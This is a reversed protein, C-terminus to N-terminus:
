VGRGTLVMNRHQECCFSLKGAQSAPCICRDRVDYYTLAGSCLRWSREGYGDLSVLELSGGFYNAYINSMPLGIGIRPHPNVGDAPVDADSERQWKGIQESVTATMGHQSSSLTRLAGLRADALRAANRM